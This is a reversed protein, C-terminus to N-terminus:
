RQKGKRRRFSRLRPPRKQVPLQRPRTAGIFAPRYIMRAGNLYYARTTHQLDKVM